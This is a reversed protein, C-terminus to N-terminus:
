LAQIAARSIARQLFLPCVDISSQYLGRARAASGQLATLEATYFYAECLRQPKGAADGDRAAAIASEPAAQGLFVRIIPAPWANMDFRSAFAPLRSPMNSRRDAVDLLLAAIADAPALEAAKELDARAQVLSGGHLNVIGRALYPDKRTPTLRIATSFDADARERDGKALYAFGRNFYVPAQAPGLQLAREYDAIARDHDGMGDYLAGRESYARASTADLRIATDFDAMAQAGSADAEYLMGRNVYALSLTPTVRIAANLDAMAKAYDHKETYAGGRNVYAKAFTPVLEIARDYDAIARDTLGTSEYAIARDYYVTAPDSSHFSLATDYDRIARSFDRRGARVVGRNTYADSFAPAIEIATDYSTLAGADDHNDARAIGRNYYLIADRSDYRLGDDFDRIAAASAGRAAEVIGLNNYAGAIRQQDGTSKAAALERRYATEAEDASGFRAIAEPAGDSFTVSRKTTPTITQVARVHPEAVVPAATRAAPDARTAPAKAGSAIQLRASYGIDIRGRECAFTVAGASANVSFVTGKASATFTTGYKVQFFDLAGHVVSFLASGHGVRSVEGQGTSLATYSTDPRLTTTSKSGTSAIVVVVGPPVDIRAGDPVSQRVALTQPRGHPLTMTPDGHRAALSTISVVVHARPADALAAQCGAAVVFAACSLHVSFRRSM